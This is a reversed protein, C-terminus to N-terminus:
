IKCCLELRVRSYQGNVTVRIREFPGLPHAELKGPSKAKCLSRKPIKRFNYIAALMLEVGNYKIIAERGVLYSSLLTPRESLPTKLREGSLVSEQGVAHIKM